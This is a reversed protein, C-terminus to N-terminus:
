SSYEPHDAVFRHLRSMASGRIKTKAFGTWGLATGQLGTAMRSWKWLDFVDCHDTVLGDEIVFTAEIVNHVRRGGFTYRAEWHASAAGDTAVINSFEVELDSGRECLMHWMAKAENGALDVFVPDSFHVADSYCAAMAEHDRRQFGEYFSSILATNPQMGGDYRRPTM